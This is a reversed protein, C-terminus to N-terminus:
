DAFDYDTEKWENLTFLMERMPTSIHGKGDTLSGSSFLVKGSEDDTIMEIRVSVDQAFEYALHGSFTNAFRQNFSEDENKAPLHISKKGLCNQKIHWGLQGINEFQMQFRPCKSDNFYKFGRVTIM